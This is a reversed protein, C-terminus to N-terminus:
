CFQIGGVQKGRMAPLLPCREVHHDYSLAENDLKHLFGRNCNSELLKKMSLTLGDYFFNALTLKEFGYHPCANAVDM